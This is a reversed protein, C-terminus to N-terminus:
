SKTSIPILAKPARLFINSAIDPLYKFRKAKNQLSYIINKSIFLRALGNEAAGPASRLLVDDVLEEIDGLSQYSVQNCSSM